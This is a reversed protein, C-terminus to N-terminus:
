PRAFFRVNDFRVYENANAKSYLLVTIKSTSTLSISPITLTNFTSQLTTTPVIISAIEKNDIANLVVAKVMNGNLTAHANCIYDLSLSYTGAPVYSITQRTLATYNSTNQHSLVWNNNMFEVYAASRDGGSYLLTSGNYLAYDTWAQINQDLTTQATYDFSQNGLLNANPYKKTYYRVYDVQMKANTLPDVMPQSRNIAYPIATIYLKSPQFAGFNIGSSSQDTEDYVAHLVGDVYYKVAGAAAQTGKGTAPMWEYGITHWQTTDADKIDWVGDAQRLYGPSVYSTNPNKVFSNQQTTTPKYVQRTPFYIHRGPQFKADGILRSDIEFGDIEVNGTNSWFSQHLGYSGTYIKVRTEYYGYGMFTNSILGGGYYKNDTKNFAIDLVGNSLSNNIARNYGTFEYPFGAYFTSSGERSLWHQLGKGDINDASFDDEFMLIYDKSPLDFSKDTPSTQSNKIVPDQKMCSLMMLVVFLLFLIQKKM